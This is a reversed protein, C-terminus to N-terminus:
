GAVMDKLEKEELLNLMEQQIEPKLYIVDQENLVISAFHKQCIKLARQVSPHTKGTFKNFVVNDKIKSASKSNGTIYNMYDTIASRAQNKM